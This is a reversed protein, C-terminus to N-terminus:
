LRREITHRHRWAHSGPVPGGESTVWGETGAWRILNPQQGVLPGQFAVADPQLEQHLAWLATAVGEPVGGDFWVEALPGYDTWLQRLNALLVQYYEEQTLVAQGPIHRTGVHGSHVNLFANNVSGHYFGPRIGHKRCADVFLRAIDGKGDMWPSNAVSYNYQFHRGDSLTLNTRSPFTNFGCGHSVVLVARKVGASVLAAVWQEPEVNTPAFTSPSPLSIGSAGDTDDDAGIGCAQFTGMNFHGIAGIEDQMWRLQAATPKPPHSIPPPPPPPPTPPPPPPAPCAGAVPQGCAVPTRWTVEYHEGGTGAHADYHDGGTGVHADPGADTSASKDCVFNYVLQRGGLGGTTTLRLGGDPGASAVPAAGLGICRECTEQVTNGPKLQYASAPAVPQCKACAATGCHAGCAAVACPGAVLYPEPYSDNLLYTVGRPLRTLDFEICSPSAAGHDQRGQTYFKCPSAVASATAAAVVASPLLLM